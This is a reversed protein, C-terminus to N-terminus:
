SHLLNNLIETGAILVSLLHPLCNYPKKRKWYCAAAPLKEHLETGFKGGASAPGAGGQIGVGVVRALLNSSCSLGVIHRTSFM